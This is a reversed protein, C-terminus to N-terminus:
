PHTDNFIKGGGKRQKINSKPGIIQAKSFTTTGTRVMPAHLVKPWSNWKARTYKGDGTKASKGFIMSGGNNGQIIVYPTGIKMTDGNTTRKASTPIKEGHGGAPNTPRQKTV